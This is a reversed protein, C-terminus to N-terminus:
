GLYFYPFSRTYPRLDPHTMVRPYCTYMGELMSQRQLYRALSLAHGGGGLAIGVKMTETYGANGSPSSLTVPDCDPNGDSIDPFGSSRDTPRAYGSGPTHRRAPLPPADHSHPRSYERPM